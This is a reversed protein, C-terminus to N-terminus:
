QVPQIGIRIEPQRPEPEVFDRALVGDVTNIMYGGRAGSQEAEDPQAHDRAGLPADHLRDAHRRGADHGYLSPLPSVVAWRREATNQCDPLRAARCTERSSKRRGAALRGRSDTPFRPWM